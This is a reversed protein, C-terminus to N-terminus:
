LQEYSNDTYTMTNTNPSFEGVAVGGNTLPYASKSKDIVLKMGTTSELTVVKSTASSAGSLNITTYGQVYQGTLNSTDTAFSGTDKQTVSLSVKLVPRNPIIVSGVFSVRATKANAESLPESNNFDAYNLAEGTIAGEFFSVGNRQVSGNFSMLTPIYSTSSKDLKFSSIKLNGAFSSAASGGKLKLLMEQSGDTTSYGGNGDPTAQLYSGEALEIRTELVGAKILAMSGSIALKELSGEQTLAGALAVNHKDGFVTATQNPKFVWRQLADDYYSSFNDTLAYAPSLEGTLNVANIRGNSDRQTSLTAANGPFAAGYHTRTENTATVNVTCNTGSPCQAADTINQYPWTTTSYDYTITKATLRAERTQTYVTFKNADVADPTLRIKTSWSTGCWDGVATCPKYEGNADTALIDDEYQSQSTCAVYKAEDKATAEVNYNADAYFTCGGISEQYYDGTKFFAKKAVFQVDPNKIVDSWFQAGLLAINLANVNSAAIPATRGYLDDSVKQLETQLSLDTADLAKANSRLTSIFAKAQELPTAVPASSGDGTSAPDTVTQAPLGLASTIANINTQLATQIGADGLGLTTLATTICTVKAAQDGTTCGQDGALAMESIAALAVAAANTPKNNADFTAITTLPNFQLAAALASNYQEVNTSSLGGTAALATATALETYPNIQTSYTTGSQAVFSARMTFGLTPTVTKGTAEDFMRTEATASAEVLVVGSYDTITATYSGNADSTVTQLLNGRVGNATKYISIKAYALPGKIASGSITTSSTALPSSGGGGGGCGALTLVAAGILAVVFKTPKIQM